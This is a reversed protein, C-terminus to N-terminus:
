RGEREGAGGRAATCAVLSTLSPCDCTTELVCDEMIITSKHGSAVLLRHQGQLQGPSYLHREVSSNVIFRIRSLRITSLSKSAVIPLPKNSIDMTTDHIHLSRLDAYRVALLMANPFVADGVDLLLWLWMCPTWFRLLAYDAPVRHNRFGVDADRVNAPDWTRHGQDDTLLADADYREADLERARQWLNSM